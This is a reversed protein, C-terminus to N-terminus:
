RRRLTIWLRHLPNNHKPRIVMLYMAMLLGFAVAFGVGVTVALRSTPEVVAWRVAITSLVRGVNAGAVVCALCSAAFIAASLFRMASAPYRRQYADHSGTLHLVIFQRREARGLVESV